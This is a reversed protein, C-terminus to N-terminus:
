SLVPLHIALSLFYDCCFLRWFKFERVPQNKNYGAKQKEPPNAAFRCILIRIGSYRLEYSFKYIQTFYIKFIVLMCNSFLM